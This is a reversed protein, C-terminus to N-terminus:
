LQQNTHLHDVQMFYPVALCFAILYFQFVFAVSESCIWLGISFDYFSAFMIGGASMCLHCTVNFDQYLYNALNILNQPSALTVRFHFFFICTQFSQTCQLTLHLVHIISYLSMFVLSTISINNQSFTRSIHLLLNFNNGESRTGSTGERIEEYM